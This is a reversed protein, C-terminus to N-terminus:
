EIIRIDTPNEIDVSLSSTELIAVVKIPITWAPNKERAYQQAQYAKLFNTVAYLMSPTIQEFLFKETAIETYHKLLSYLTQKSITIPITM